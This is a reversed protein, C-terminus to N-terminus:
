GRNSHGLSKVWKAFCSDAAGELLGEEVNVGIISSKILNVKLGSVLKFCRLIAKMTWPNEFSAEGM